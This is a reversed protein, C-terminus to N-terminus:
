GAFERIQKIIYRGDSMYKLELDLSKKKESTPTYPVYECNRSWKGNKAHCYSIELHKVLDVTDILQQDSLVRKDLPPGGAKPVAHRITSFSIYEDSEAQISWTMESLTGRDPNTVLLNDIQSAITYGILDGQVAEQVKTVVVSNAVVKNHKSSYSPVVAIAMSIGGSIHAYKREELARANYLSAYVGLIACDVRKPKMEETERIFKCEGKKKNHIKAAFSTYLGAGDFGEIDEASASSRFKLKIDDDDDDNNSIQKELQHIANWIRDLNEQPITAKYFLEQVQLVAQHLQAKTLKGHDTDNQLKQIALKLDKNDQHNILDDYHAFPISFGIPSLDYGFHNSPTNPDNKRGLSVPLSLFALNASKAGFTSKKQLCKNADEISTTRNCMQDYHLIDRTETDYVMIIPDKKKEKHFNIVQEDTSEVLIVRTSTVNMMVPKDILSALIHDHVANKYYCDPTGRERSKLSVHSSPDQFTTTIVGSVVSLYLPLDKLVVIDLETESEDEPFLRLYGYTVGNVVGSYEIDGLIDQLSLALINLNKFDELTHTVVQQNGTAVFSLQVDLKITSKVIKAAVIVTKEHMVDQPYFQFALIKKEQYTYSQLTGAFFLKEQTFYTVSNFEELSLNFKPVYKEAFDFHYKQSDGDLNSNIYYITPNNTRCDILFKTAPGFNSTFETTKSISTFNEATYIVNVYGEKIGYTVNCLFAFVVALLITTM